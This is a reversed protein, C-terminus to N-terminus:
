AAQYPKVLGVLLRYLNKNFPNEDTRISSLQLVNKDVYENVYRYDNKSAGVGIAVRAAVWLRKPLLFGM